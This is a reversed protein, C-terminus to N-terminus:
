GDPNMSGDPDMASGATGNASPTGDPDMQSGAQGFLATPAPEGTSDLQSGAIGSASPTGNPDMDGGAQGFLATVTDGGDPTAWLGSLLTRLRALWAGSDLQTTAGATAPGPHGGPSAAAAPAPSLLTLVLAAAALAALIRQAKRM